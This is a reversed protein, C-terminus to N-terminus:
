KGEMVPDVLRRRAWRLLLLIPGNCDRNHTNEATKRRKLKESEVLDALADPPTEIKWPIEELPMNGYIRDM